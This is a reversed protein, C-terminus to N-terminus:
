NVVVFQRALEQRTIVAWADNTFIPTLPYTHKITGIHLILYDAHEKTAIDLLKKADHADNIDTLKQLSKNLDYYHKTLKGNVLGLHSDMEMPVFNKGTGAELFMDIGWQYYTAPLLILAGAPLTNIFDVLSETTQYLPPPWRVRPDTEVPIGSMVNGWIRKAEMWGGFKNGEGYGLLAVQKVMIVIFCALPWIKLHGSTATFKVWFIRSLMFVLLIAPIYAYAYARVIFTSRFQTYVSSLWSDMQATLLLLCYMALLTFGLKLRERDFWGIALIAVLVPLSTQKLVELVSPNIEWLPTWWVGGQFYRIVEEPAVAGIASPRSFFVICGILAAGVGLILLSSLLIHRDKRSEYLIRAIASVILAPGTYVITPVYIAAITTLSAVFQFTASRAGNLMLLYYLAVPFLAYGWMKTVSASWAVYNGFASNLCIFAFLFGLMNSQLIKLGLTLLGVSAVIYILSSFLLNAQLLSIDLMTSSKLTLTAFVRDQVTRIEHRYSQYENSLAGEKERQLQAQYAYHWTGDFAKAYSPPMLIYHLRGVMFIAVVSAFLFAARRM